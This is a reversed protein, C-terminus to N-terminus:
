GCFQLQLDQRWTRHDGVSGVILWVAHQKAFRQLELLVPHEAETTAPPAFAAGETKLGGCYEPLAILEAGVSVATEALALAETIASGFDPKPRTQLCAINLPRTM